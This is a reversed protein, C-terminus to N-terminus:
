TNDCNMIENIVKIGILSEIHKVVMRNLSVGGTFIIPSNFNEGSFLTDVINRALGHCLGDCIEPLTYGEQQAHALDTKAFVACRSAIKPIAGTNTFAMHSLEAISSLNLRKAQQDLFSGTGAACSTNAKYSLYNGHSDFQILGFKEGGVVLISGIEHHFLRCAEILAIRNDFLDTTELISPTSTTAVIGCIGPLHFDNLVHELSPIIQGRHSVYAKQVVRKHLDVAVVSISVSGIDIGLIYSNSFM